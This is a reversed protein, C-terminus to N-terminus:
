EDEDDSELLAYVQETTTAARLAEAKEPDMLVTALQSLLAIHGNGKAAIGFALRVDNGDWDVGDPFRVLSLADSLVSDKAALTGHPIAVGEGMFTSVSNERDIMADVYAEDIAGVALLGAGAQRIADDRSTASADLDISAEALLEALPTSEDPM